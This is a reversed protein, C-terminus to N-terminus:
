LLASSRAISRRSFLDDPRLRAATWTTTRIRLTTTGVKVAISSTQSSVGARLWSMTAMGGYIVDEGGGGGIEEENGDGGEIADVGGLGHIEDEGKL